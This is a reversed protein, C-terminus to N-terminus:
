EASDSLLPEARGAWLRKHSSYTVKSATGCSLRERGGSSRPSSVSSRAFTGPSPQAARDRPSHGARAPGCSRVPVATIGRPKPRPLRSLLAEESQQAPGFRRFTSGRELSPKTGPSKRPGHCHPSLATGGQSPCLEQGRATASLRACAGTWCSSLRLPADSHM